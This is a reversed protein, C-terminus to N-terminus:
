VMVPDMKYFVSTKLTSDTFSIYYSLNKLSEIYIADRSSSKSTFM